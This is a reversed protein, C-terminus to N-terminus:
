QISVALSHILSFRVPTCRKRSSCSNSQDAAQEKRLEKNSAEIDQVKKTSKHIEQQLQSSEAELIFKVTDETIHGKAM